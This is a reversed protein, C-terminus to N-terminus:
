RKKLILYLTILFITGAIGLGIILLVSWLLWDWTQKQPTEICKNNVFMYGENCRCLGDAGKYANEGCTGDPSPPYSPPERVDGDKGDGSGDGAPPTTNDGEEEHDGEDKSGWGDTDLDINGTIGEPCKEDTPKWYGNECIHTTITEGSYQCKITRTDGEPCKQEERPKDKLWATKCLTTDQARCSQVYIDFQLEYPHPEGIRSIVGTNFLVIPKDCYFTLKDNDTTYTDPYYILSSDTTKGGCYAKFNYIWANKGNYIGTTKGKYKIYATDYGIYDFNHLKALDEALFTIDREAGVQDLQIVWGGINQAQGNPFTIAFPPLNTWALSILLLSAGILIYSAQKSFFSFEKSLISIASLVFLTLALSIIFAGIIKESPILSLVTQLDNTLTSYNNINIILFLIYCILFIGLPIFEKKM